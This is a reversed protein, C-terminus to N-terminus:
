KSSGSTFKYGAGWVTKIYEVGFKLCKERIRKIYVAVSSLDGYINEGWIAEYIQEKSFVQNPHSALYYLLEFEKTTFEINNGNIFAEYSNQNMQLLGATLTNASQLEVQNSDSGKYRRINAKVRAVLELPSFPKTIYDDAGAGLCIVKDLEGSKASLMIIPIDAKERVRKCVEIGDLKPLMIDLIILQPNCNVALELGKEGDAAIEISFGEMKLYEGLIHALEIEDEVILIDKKMNEM